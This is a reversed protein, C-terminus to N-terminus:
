IKGHFTFCICPAMRTGMATGLKQIYNTNNFKFHNKTLVLEILKPISQISGEPKCFCVCKKPQGFVSLYMFFVFFFLVFHNHGPFPVIVARISSMVNSCLWVLLTVFMLLMVTHNTHRYLYIIWSGLYIGSFGVM